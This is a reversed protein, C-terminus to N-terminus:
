RYTQRWGRRPDYGRREKLWRDVPNRFLCQRLYNRKFAALQRETRLRGVGHKRFIRRLERTHTSLPLHTTLRYADRHDRYVYLIEPVALFRAGHEAMTWPFDYDDPGVNRISEDLGGIALAKERRWCLLHKVPSGRVFDGLAFSERAPQDGGLPTGDGDIRRRGSHFFDVDVHRDVYSTLVEVARPDWLDDGLLIAVFDTTAHRMGTNIAGALRSGENRVLRVREDRLSEGLVEALEADGGEHVVLLRWHPSTQALMSAVADRLFGPYYRHVPLLATLVHEYQARTAQALV